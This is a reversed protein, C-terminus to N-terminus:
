DNKQTANKVNLPSVCSYFLYNFIGTKQHFLRKKAFFILIASNTITKQM